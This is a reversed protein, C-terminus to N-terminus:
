QEPSKCGGCNGCSGACRGSNPCGICKVGKKKAKRIYGIVFGFIAAIILIILFDVPKM